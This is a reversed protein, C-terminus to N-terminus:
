GLKSCRTDQHTRQCAISCYRMGCRVCTYHGVYGCVSCFSRPPHSCPGAAATVYNPKEAGGEERMGLADVIEDLTRKVRRGKGGKAGGGGVAAAAAEAERRRKGGAKAAKAKAKGKAAASGQMVQEEEDEDWAPDTLDVDDSGHNDRELGALRVATVHARTAADLIPRTSVRQTSLRSSRKSARPPPPLFSSSPPPAAASSAPPPAPVSSASM